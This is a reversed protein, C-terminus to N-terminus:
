IEEKEFTFVSDADVINEKKMRVNGLMVQEGARFKDIVIQWRKFNRIPKGKYQPYAHTLYSMGDSGKFFVHYFRDGHYSERNEVGTVTLVLPTAMEGGEFIELSPSRTM